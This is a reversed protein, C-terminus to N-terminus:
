ATVHQIVGHLSCQGLTRWSCSVVKSRPQPCQRCAERCYQQPTGFSWQRGRVAQTSPAQALHQVVGVMGARFSRVGAQTHLLLCRTEPLAVVPVFVIAVSLSRCPCMAIMIRFVQSGAVRVSSRTTPRGWTCTPSAWRRACSGTAVAGVCGHSLVQVDSM